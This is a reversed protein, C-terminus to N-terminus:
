TPSWKRKRKLTKSVRDVNKCEGKMIATSAAAPYTRELLLEYPRTPQNKSIDKSTNNQRANVDQRQRGAKSPWFAQPKRIDAALQMHWPM